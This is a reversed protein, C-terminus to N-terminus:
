AARAGSDSRGRGAGDVPRRERARERTPLSVINVLNGQVTLVDPGPVTTLTFYRSKALEERFTTDVIDRLSEMQRPTLPSATPANAHTQAAQTLPRYAIFSPAFMVKHYSRVDFFKRVWLENFVSSERRYLGDASMEFEAGAARASCVAASTMLLVLLARRM